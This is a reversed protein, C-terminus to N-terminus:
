VLVRRVLYSTFSSGFWLKWFLDEVKALGGEACNSIVSFFRSLFSVGMMEGGLLLCQHIIKQFKGM